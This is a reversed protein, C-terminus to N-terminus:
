SARRNAILRGLGFKYAVACDAAEASPHMVMRLSWGAWRLALGVALLGRVGAEAARGYHKRVFLLKSQLLL